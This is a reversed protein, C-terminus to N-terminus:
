RDSARQILPLYTRFEVARTTFGLGDGPTWDSSGGANASRVQLCYFVGPSLADLVLSHTRKLESDSLSRSWSGCANGWRVESTAEVDTTWTVVASTALPFVVPGSLIVPPPPTSFPTDSSYVPGPSRDIFGYRCMGPNMGTADTVTDRCPGEPGEDFHYLAVTDEDPTFPARPPTFEGEYRIIRSIRVEDIWGSYSPYTTRDVDHKEAGIVLYPDNPYSTSRGDRYRIDGAPGWGTADLRGDVFIQMRGDSGRRTVAIHHWNEDAVFISGCLTFGNGGRNVGFAIQGGALSIGYDGYDGPGFVDRDFLINGFIWLDGEASLCASSPNEEQLAKMWWEITLDGGLNISREEVPIKVRDIDGGGNGYFRLSFGGAGQAPHEIRILPFLWALLLLIEWGRVRLRRPEQSRTGQGIERTVASNRRGM